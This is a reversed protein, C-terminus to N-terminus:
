RGAGLRQASSRPGSRGIVSADPAPAASAAAAPEAEAALPAPEVALVPELGALSPEELEVGPGASRLREDIDSASALLSQGCGRARHRIVDLRDRALGDNSM